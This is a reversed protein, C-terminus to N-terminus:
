KRTAVINTVESSASSTRSVAKQLERNAVLADDITGGELATLTASVGQQADAIAQKMRAASQYVQKAQTIATNAKQLERQTSRLMDQARKAYHAAQNAVAKAKVIANGASAALARAGTLPKAIGAAESQIRAVAVVKAPSNIANALGSLKATLAATASADAVQSELLSLSLQAAKVSGDKGFEVVDKTLSQVVFNGFFAGTGSLLPVVESSEVLSLLGSIETDPTCFSAHLQITLTVEDLNMGVRQLRPKGEIVQHQVLNAETKSQFSDFGKLGEFVINGLQAYM